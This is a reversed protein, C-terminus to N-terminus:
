AQEPQSRGNANATRSASHEYQQMNPQRRMLLSPCVQSGPLMKPWRRKRPSRSSPRSAGQAGSTHRRPNSATFAIKAVRACYKTLWRGLPSKRQTSKRRSVPTLWFQRARHLHRSKCAQLSPQSARPTWIDFAYDGLETAWRSSKRCKRACQDEHQRHHEAEM